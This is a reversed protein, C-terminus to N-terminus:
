TTEGRHCGGLSAVILNTTIRGDTDPPHLLILSSQVPPQGDRPLLAAQATASWAPSSRADGVLLIRDAQGLCRQTWASLTPDAEYVVYRHQSEQENLWRVISFNAPDNTPTQAAGKNMLANEM